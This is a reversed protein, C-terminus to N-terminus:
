MLNVKDKSIAKREETLIKSSEHYTESDNKRRYKQM